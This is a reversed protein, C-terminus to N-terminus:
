SDEVAAGMAVLVVVHALEPMFQEPFHAHPLFLDLPDPILYNHYRYTLEKVRDTLGTQNTIPFIIVRESSIFIASETEGHRM